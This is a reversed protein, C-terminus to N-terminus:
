GAKWGVASGTVREKQPDERNVSFQKGAHGQSLEKRGGGWISSYIYQVAYGTWFSGGICSYFFSDASINILNEAPQAGACLVM